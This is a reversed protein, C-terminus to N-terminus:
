IGLTEALETLDAIILDPEERALLERDDFGTLVGITRCGATRGAILDVRTDGIYASDRPPTEMQRCCELLPIPSPKVAATDDAAIISAFHSLIGARQLPELKVALNARPTSTVIAMKCGTNGIQEIAPAVEPLLEIRQNFFDPALERARQWALEKLEPRQRFLAEPFLKEWLFKGERNAESIQERTVPPLALSEMVKGVIAYYIWVSDILTGDLDFMMLAPPFGFRHPQSGGSAAFGAVRGENM